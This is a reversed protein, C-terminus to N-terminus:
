YSLGARDLVGLYRNLIQGARYITDAAAQPYPESDFYALVECDPFSDPERELVPGLPSCRYEMEPPVPFGLYELTEAVGFAWAMANGWADGDDFDRMTRIIPNLGHRPM